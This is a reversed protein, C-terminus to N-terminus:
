WRDNDYEDLDIEDGETNCEDAEEEIKDIYDATCSECRKTSYRNYCDICKLDREQKESWAETIEVDGDGTLIMGQYYPVNGYFLEKSISKLKGSIFKNMWSYSKRDVLGLKYKNGKYITLFTRCEKVVVFDNKYKVLHYGGGLPKGISKVKATALMAKAKEYTLM